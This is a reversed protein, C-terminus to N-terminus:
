ELFHNRHAMEFKENALKLTYVKYLLNSQYKIWFKLLELSTIHLIDFSSLRLDFPNLKQGSADINVFIM